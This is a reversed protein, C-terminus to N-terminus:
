LGENMKRNEELNAITKELPDLQKQIESKRRFLRNRREAEERKQERNKYLSGREESKLEPLTQNLEERLLSRELYYSYNGLYEFMMKDRIEVVRSVMSDLFYRDHSIVLVTGDYRVLADQFLQNTTMDLHNTPEDLILFNTDQMIIKLLALRAKEGGSLVSVEKYIDDGSFLFTGLLNRKELESFKSNVTNIEEWVTRDYNVNQASEQSFSAMKVNMGSQVTGSSPAERQSILRALTSKGAGNLGVLAVKEQRYITLDINRFVEIDDYRKTVNKVTVVEKGSRECGPFRISVHKAEKDLEITQIKELMKVRSQVQSAKTAQYRFREIFEETKEIKKRQTEMEKQLQILRQEKERLYFSYNGRFITLKSRFLEATQRTIKDLFRRDHSVAVITGPYDKLYNELWEMNELDLHNTPEDLLMIDPSSLLISGLLIKMKWGGSFDSCKKEFDVEMFGLGKLIKKCLAEFAYGEQLTFQKSDTTYKRLLTTYADTNPSLLAMEEESLKMKREIEALGTIKKLYDIVPIDELEVLDQPLYGISKNHPIVVTGKDPSVRNLILKLLTTKGTGNDGVLGVRGRETIDWTLNHFLVKGNFSLEINHLRIM